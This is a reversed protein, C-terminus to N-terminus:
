RRGAARQGPVETSVPTNKLHSIEVVLMSVGPSDQEGSPLIKISVDSSGEKAIM